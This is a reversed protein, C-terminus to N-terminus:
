PSNVLSVDTKYSLNCLINNSIQLMINLDGAHDESTQCKITDLQRPLCPM